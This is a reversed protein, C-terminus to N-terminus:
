GMDLVNVQTPPGSEEAAPTDGQAKKQQEIIGNMFEEVAGVSKWAAEAEQTPIKDSLISLGKRALFMVNRLDNIHM